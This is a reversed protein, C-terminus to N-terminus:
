AGTRTRFDRLHCGASDHYASFRDLSMTYGSRRRGCASSRIPEDGIIEEYDEDQLREPFDYIINWGYKVGEAQCWKLLRLGELARSGKCM